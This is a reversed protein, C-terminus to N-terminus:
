GPDIEYLHHILLLLVVRELDANGSRYLWNHTSRANPDVNRAGDGMGMRALNIVHDPWHNHVTRMVPEGGCVLKKAQAYFDSHAIVRNALIEGHRIALQNTLAEPMRRHGSDRLTPHVSVVARRPDASEAYGKLLAKDHSSPRVLKRTRSDIEYLTGPWAPYEAWVPRGNHCTQCSEINREVTPPDEAFDVVGLTWEQEGATIFEVEDYLPSDANSGWAFITRADAGFSIMRPYEESVFAQDLAQSAVMYISHGKHLPPLGQVFQNVSRAEGIFTRIHAEVPHIVVLRFPVVLRERKAAKKGWRYEVIYDHAVDYEEGPTGSLRRTARDYTLGAPLPRRRKGKVNINKIWHRWKGAKTSDTVGHPLQISVPENMVLTLDSVPEELTIAAAALAPLGLALLMACLPVLYAARQGCSRGEERLASLM